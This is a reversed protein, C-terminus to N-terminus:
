CIIYYVSVGSYGWMRSLRMDGKGEKNKYRRLKNIITDIRKIRFTVIAKNDQSITVKRLSDFIFPLAESYSKRYEQLLDLDQSSVEQNDRLRKGLQDIQGITFAM